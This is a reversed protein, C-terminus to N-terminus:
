NNQSYDVFIVWLGRLGESKINSNDLSVGARPFLRSKVWINHHQSTSYQAQFIHFETSYLGKCVMQTQFSRGLTNRFTRRVKLNFTSGTNVSLTEWANTMSYSYNSTSSNKSSHGKFLLFPLINICGFTAKQWLVRSVLAAM